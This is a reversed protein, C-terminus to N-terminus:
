LNYSLLRGGTLTFITFTKNIHPRGSKVERNQVIEINEPSIDKHIVGYQHLTLLSELMPRMIRLTEKLPLKGGRLTLYQRLSIGDLYEMAIYATNNSIFFDAIEVVGPLHAISTLVQAEDIFAALWHNFAPLHSENMVTVRASCPVRTAYGKPFFEKIALRTSTELDWALYTIGFGGMGLMDGLMYRKQLVTRPPLVLPSTQGVVGRRRCNPCFGYKNLTTFCHPCITNINRRDKQMGYNYRM